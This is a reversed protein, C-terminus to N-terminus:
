LIGAAVFLHMAVLSFLLSDIRDVVGGHGPILDSSDKVKGGRKLMSALLDGLQASVAVVLGAAAALWIPASLFSGGAAAFAAAALLGAAAGICTKKPSLNPALPRRGWASGAFYAGADNVWTIVLAFLLYWWGGPAARLVLWFGTLGVYATTFLHWSMMGVWGSWDSTGALGLLLYLLMLSPPIYLLLHYHSLQVSLLAALLAAHCPWSSVVQWDQHPLMSHLEGAAFVAVVAVVTWFVWGGLYAALLFVPGIVFASKVRVRVDSM